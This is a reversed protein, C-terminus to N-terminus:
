PISIVKQIDSILTLNTSDGLQLDHQVCKVFWSWTTINEYEVVVWPIPLMQNNGYKCVVVLLQGKCIGKLFCGDLGVCRRCGSLFVKKLADFYVYFSLFVLKGDADREGVKVVCTSDPNTRLVEDRYDYIRKFKAIHDGMIETLVKARARRATTMGVHIGLEKKITEQFKFIRINPHEIIRDRFRKALYKSNCIYNKNTEGCKNIPYYTKVMFNNSNEYVSAFLLWKCGEKSCKVRVKGPGNVYKEIQKKEQIAYKTVAERFKDINDFVLGLEWVIKQEVEEGDAEYDTEFSCAESSGYYPEDGCFIDDLNKKQSPTQQAATHGDYGLDPKSKPSGETLPVEKSVSARGNKKKERFLGGRKSSIGLSKMCMVVM